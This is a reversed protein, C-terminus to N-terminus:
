KKGEATTDSDLQAVQAALLQALQALEAKDIDLEQEWRLGLGDEKRTKPILHFHVHFVAQHALQGNNQLINYDACSAARAVKHLLM